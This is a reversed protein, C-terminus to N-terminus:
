QGREQEFSVYRRGWVWVYAAGSVVTTAATAYLLVIEVPGSGWGLGLRALIVAALAIQVATNLKSVALPEMTLAQTIKLYLLAGGVIVIDRLVVAAVLWLPVEGLWGLTVFAAFLLAKDAIPDLYAGLESAADFRKALFGDLADSIGAAFFVWVAAAMNGGLLLLVFIPVAILRAITIANPIWIPM